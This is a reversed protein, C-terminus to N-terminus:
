YKMADAAIEEGLDFLFAMISFILVIKNSPDGVAIGGLIFTTAVSCSVMINGPLSTEKLKWNYLVGIIWLIICIILAYISIM